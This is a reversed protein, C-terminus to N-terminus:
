EKLLVANTLDAGSKGSEFELVNEFTTAAINELAEKTLFAMHSTIMVNSFTTLRALVEDTIVASSHDEYFYDSEEEYVDLGAGGLQGSLLGQILAPTDVLGGRSTNIIIVGKKMHGIAKGDIIHRTEPMLPAYLCIVDSSKLLENLEVYRVGDKARVNEDPFKDYALVKCGFGLFINIACKGIRGTGIVGISKGYMDFGVLNDLSFNGERVRNHAKHIHRNLALLLAVSHEAVAYPSYAPVRTVSIGLQMCAKLDVNNYGACRLAIMKVGLEDLVRVAKEDVNDNVFVCIVDFGRAMQATDANLRVDFFKFAYRDNNASEFVERSYPKSDFFAIKLRRDHDQSQLATVVQTQHRLYKSLAAMISRSIAPSTDLLEQFTEKDIELLQAISGAQMTASRPEAEFLSMIGAVEGKKLVAIEVPLEGAGKKLVRLEGSAVVYMRDGQEGEACILEGKKFNVLKMKDRLLKLSEEDLSSFLDINRLMEFSQDRVSMHSIGGKLM